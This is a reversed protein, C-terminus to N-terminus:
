PAEVGTPLSASRRERALQDAGALTCLLAYGLERTESVALHLFPDGRVVLLEALASSALDVFLPLGLWPTVVPGGFRDIWRALAPVRAHAFPILWLLTVMFYDFLRNSSTLARWGSKKGGAPDYSDIWWLNHLNVEEQANLEKIPEPTEFGLLHQGWSLEEGCAVFLLVALSGYAIRRWRAANRSAKGDGSAIGLSPVPVPRTARAARWFYVSAALFLVAGVTEYTKERGALLDVWRTPLFIVLHAVVCFISAALAVVRPRALGRTALDGSETRVSETDVNETRGSM